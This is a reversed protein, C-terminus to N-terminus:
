CAGQRLVCRTDCHIGMRARLLVKLKQEEETAPKFFSAILAQTKKPMM